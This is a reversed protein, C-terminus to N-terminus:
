SLINLSPPAPWPSFSVQLATTTLTSRKGAALRERLPAESMNQKELRTEARDIQRELKDLDADTGDDLLLQHRQKQLEDIKGRTEDRDRGLQVLAADLSEAESGHGNLGALIKNFL